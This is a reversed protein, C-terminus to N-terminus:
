SKLNKEKKVNEEMIEWHFRNKIIWGFMNLGDLCEKDIRTVIDGKSDCRDRLRKDRNKETKKIKNVVFLVFLKKLLLNM